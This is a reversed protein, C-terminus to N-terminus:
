NGLDVVPWSSPRLFIKLYEARTEGVIYYYCNNFCARQKDKQFEHVLIRQFGYASQLTFSM